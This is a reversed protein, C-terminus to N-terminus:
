EFVVYRKIKELRKGKICLDKPNSIKRESRMKLIRTVTEPGLGPVRLLAERESRNIKVPYFEPHNEAWIEKPDKDIRLNGSADLLIDDQM